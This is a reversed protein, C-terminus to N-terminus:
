DSDLFLLLLFSLDGKTNLYLVSVESDRFNVYIIGWDLNNDRLLKDSLLFNM